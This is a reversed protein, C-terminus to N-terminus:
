YGEFDEMEPVGLMSKMEINEDYLVKIEEEMQEIEGEKEKM